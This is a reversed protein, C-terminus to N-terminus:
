SELHRELVDKNGTRGLTLPTVGTAEPLGYIILNSRRSRNELADIRNKRSIVAANMHAIQEQCSHIKHELRTFVNLKRDIEALYSEKFM